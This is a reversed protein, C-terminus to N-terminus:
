DHLVKDERKSVARRKIYRSTDGKKSNELGSTNIDIIIIFTKFVRKTYIKTIKYRIHIVLYIIIIIIIIIIIVVGLITSLIPAHLAQNLGLADRMTKGQLM